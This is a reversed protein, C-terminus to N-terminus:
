AAARRAPTARRVGCDLRAPLDFEVETIPGLRQYDPEGVAVRVIVRHIALNDAFATARFRRVGHETAAGALRAMLERALGLRQYDDGVVIAFEATTSGPRVRVCRAVAVIAEDDSETVTAVLALHDHGDVDVLYRTDAGTLQPKSSMFRGYQSEPSLREHSARLREGDDARIQRITVIRGDRLAFVDM